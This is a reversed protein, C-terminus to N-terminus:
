GIRIVCISYTKCYRMNCTNKSCFTKCGGGPDVYTPKYINM